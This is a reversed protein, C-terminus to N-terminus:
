GARGDAAVDVAIGHECPLVAACAVLTQAKQAIQDAIRKRDADTRPTDYMIRRLADLAETYDYRTAKIETENM